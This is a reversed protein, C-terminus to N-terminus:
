LEPAPAVLAAAVVDRLAASAPDAAASPDVASVLVLTGAMLADRHERLLAHRELADVVVLTAAADDLLAAEGCGYLIPPARERLRQKLRRPYTADARSLVWIARSHWRDVAQGLLFGRALLRRLRAEDVVSAMARVLPDADLGLLDAPQRQADRLLAALRNYEALSLPGDVAARSSAARGALLPATLLLIAQANKSLADSM